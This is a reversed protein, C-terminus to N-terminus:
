KQSVLPLQCHAACRCRVQANTHQLRSLGPVLWRALARRTRKRSAKTELYAPQTDSRLMSSAPCTCLGGCSWGETHVALKSDTAPGPMATVVVPGPLVFEDDAAVSMLPSLMADDDAAGAAALLVAAAAAGAGAGWAAARASLLLLWPKASATKAAAISMVPANRSQCVVLHTPHVAILRLFVRKNDMLKM